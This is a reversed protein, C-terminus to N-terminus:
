SVWFYGYAKVTVVMNGATTTNNTVRIKCANPGTVDFQKQVTQNATYAVEGSVNDMGKSYATIDTADTLSLCGLVDVVANGDITAAMAISVDIIVGAYGKDGLKILSSLATAAKAITVGDIITSVGNETDFIKMAKAGM